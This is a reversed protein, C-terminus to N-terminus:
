SLAPSRANRGPQLLYRPLRAQQSSYQNGEIWQRITRRLPESLTKRHSGEQFCVCDEITLMLTSPVEQNNNVPIQSVALAAIKKFGPRKAVLTAAVPISHQFEVLGSRCERLQWREVAVDVTLSIRSTEGGLQSDEALSTGIGLVTCWRPAPCTSVACGAVVRKVGVCHKCGM